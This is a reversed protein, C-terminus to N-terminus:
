SHKMKILLQTPTHKSWAMTRLYTVDATLVQQYNQFFLSTLLLTFNINRFNSETLYACIRM